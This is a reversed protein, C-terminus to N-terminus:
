ISTLTVVHSFVIPSMTNEKCAWKKLKEPGHAHYYAVLLEQKKKYLKQTAKELRQKQYTLKIVYNHQYIKAFM